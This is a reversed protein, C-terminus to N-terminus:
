KTLHKQVNCEAPNLVVSECNDHNRFETNLFDWWDRSGLALLRKGDLPCSGNLKSLKEAFCKAGGIDETPCKGQGDLLEALAYEYTTDDTDSHIAEVKIRHLWWDGLDYVYGIDQGVEWLMDGVKVEAGDCLTGIYFPRHVM